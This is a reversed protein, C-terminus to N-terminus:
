YHFIQAQSNTRRLLSQFIVFHMSNAPAIEALQCHMRDSKVSDSPTRLHTLPSRWRYWLTWTHVYLIPEQSSLDTAYRSSHMRPVRDISVCGISIAVQHSIQGSQHGGHIKPFDPPAISFFILARWGPIRSVTAIWVGM